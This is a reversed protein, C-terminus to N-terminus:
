NHILPSINAPKLASGCLKYASKYDKPILRGYNSQSLGIELWFRRYKKVEKLLFKSGEEVMTRFASMFIESEHDFLEEVTHLVGTRDPALKSRRLDDRIRGTDKTQSIAMIIVEYRSREQPTSLRDPPTPLICATLLEANYMNHVGLAEIIAKYDQLVNPKIFQGFERSWPVLLRSNKTALASAAAVYNPSKVSPWVPLSSLLPKLEADQTSEM